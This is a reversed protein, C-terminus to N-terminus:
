DSLELSWKLGLRSLGHVIGTVKIPPVEPDLTFDGIRRSVVEELRTM